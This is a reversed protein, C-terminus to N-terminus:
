QKGKRIENLVMAVTVHVLNEEKDTLKDLKDLREIIRHTVRNLDVIEDASMALVESDFGVIKMKKGLKM